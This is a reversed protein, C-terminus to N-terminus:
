YVTAQMTIDHRIKRAMTEFSMDNRKAYRSHATSRHDLKRRRGAAAGARGGDDRLQRTLRDM